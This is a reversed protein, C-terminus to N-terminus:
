EPAEAAKVAEAKRRRVHDFKDKVGKIMADEMYVEDSAYCCTINVLVGVLAELFIDLQRIRNDPLDAPMYERSIDMGHAFNAQTARVFNMAETQVKEEWPLDPPPEVGRLGLINGGERGNSTM